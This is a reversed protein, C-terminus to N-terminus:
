ANYAKEMYEFLSEWLAKGEGGIYDAMDEFSPQKFQPYLDNWEM